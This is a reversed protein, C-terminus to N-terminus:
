SRARSCGLPAPACSYGRPARSGTMVPGGVLATNGNASLAVGTGFDHVFGRPILHNTGYLEGNGTLKNGQQSWTTGARTFVWAAGSAGHGTGDSDGGILATNGDASLAVPNGFFAKGVEGGGTLKKGQQSWSSGSRVFVWAAGREGNDDAGGILATNGDASLAVSGGFDAGGVEGGGTLKKGQQSWSSGSRVFVWAAGRGDDDYYSGILATNGDASLTVGSGFHASGVEGIDTLTSGQQIFPDIRLPYRAGRDWVRLLLRGDSLGLASRVARGSADLVSLGGYRLVVVGTPSRFAVSSSSLRPILSGGITLAVTLPGTGVKPRSNVTFGQELGLPGNRYWEEIWRRRYRVINGAAVPAIRAPATLQDGYGAGVLRLDVTGGPVTARVASSGFESTIGGGTAVLTAGRHGIRFESSSGGIVQELAAPLGPSAVTVHSTRAPSTATPMGASGGVLLATSAVLVIAWGVMVTHSEGVRGSRVAASSYAFEM